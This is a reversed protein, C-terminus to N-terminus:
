GKHRPHAQSALALSALSVWIGVFLWLLLGGQRFLVDGSTIQTLVSLAIAAAAVQPMRVSKLRSFIHAAVLAFAMLYCSGGAWGLMYFILILSSDLPYGHLQYTTDIGNGVPTTLTVSAMYKYLGQRENASADSKLSSLSHVRQQIDAAQPLQEVGLILTGFILVLALLGKLPLRPQCGLILLVLGVATELWASRGLTLLLASYGLLSVMTTPLTARTALWILAVSLTVAFPGPANMTSWVRMGFPQPQGFSPSTAAVGASVARLWFADWPPAVVFQYLGYISMVLVGFFFTQTLVRPLDERERVSAAFICLVIPAVWTATALFVTSGPHKICGVGFGYAIGALALLTVSRIVPAISMLRRRFDIAPILTVLLPALLIYSQEQYFTKWDVLRRLLPALMYIWLLFSLFYAENKRYLRYGFVCTAAPFVLRLLGPKVALLSLTLVLFPVVIWMADAFPSRQRLNVRLPLLTDAPQPFSSRTGPSISTDAISM